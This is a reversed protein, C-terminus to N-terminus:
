IEDLLRVLAVLSAADHCPRFHDVFPLATSMGLTLPEFAPDRLQPNLWIVSHARLQIRAMATRLPTPDGLDWGDSAIIVVAGQLAGAHWRDLRALSEGVRTGGAWDAIAEGAAPLARAPQHRLEKTVRTLRTAFTFTEVSRRGALAAHAFVLLARAFPEMSGSVDCVVVLKRQQISPRHHHRSMPFGDRRLGARLTRRVDVAGRPSPQRRRRRRWPGVRSLGLLRASLREYDDAGYEDFPKEGLADVSSYTAAHDHDRGREPESESPEAETLRRRVGAPSARGPAELVPEAATADDARSPSDPESASPIPPMAESRWFWHFTRDFAPIDDGHKVLSTRLAWYLDREDTLGIAALADLATHVDSPAVRIGASRLAAAFSALRDAIM